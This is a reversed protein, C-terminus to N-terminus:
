SSFLTKIKFALEMTYYAFGKLPVAAQSITWVAWSHHAAGKQSYEVKAKNQELVQLYDIVEKARDSVHVLDEEEEKILLALEKEAKDRVKDQYFTLTRRGNQFDFKGDSTFFPKTHYDLTSLIGESAEPTEVILHNTAIFNANAGCLNRDGTLTIGDCGHHAFNLEIQPIAREGPHRGALLELNKKWIEYTSIDLKPSAYAFIKIECINQLVKEDRVIQDVLLSATRQADAAGLSHGIIELCSPGQDKAVYESIMEVLHSALSDFARKGVGSFDVDRQMSGLGRTGRFILQAPAGPRNIPAFLYAHLGSENIKGVLEYFFVQKCESRIVPIIMGLQITEPKAYGILKARKEPDAFLFEAQEIAEEQSTRKTENDVALTCRDALRQTFDHHRVYAFCKHDIGNCDKELEEWLTRGNQPTLVSLPNRYLNLLKSIVKMQPVYPLIRLDEFDGVKGLAFRDCDHLDIDFFQLVEFQIKEKRLQKWHDCLDDMTISNGISGMAILVDRRDSRDPLERLARRVLEAGYFKNLCDILEEKQIEKRTGNCIQALVTTASFNFVNTNTFRNSLSSVIVSM